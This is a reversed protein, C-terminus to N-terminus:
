KLLELICNAFKETKPKFGLEICTSKLKSLEAKEAEVKAAKPDYGGGSYTDEEATKIESSKLNKTKNQAERKLRISEEKQLKKEEKLRQAEAIAEEKQKKDSEAKEKQIIQLQENKYKLFDFDLVM